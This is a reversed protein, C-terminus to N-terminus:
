RHGLAPSKVTDLFGLATGTYAESECFLAKTQLVSLKCSRALQHGLSVTPESLAVKQPTPVEM